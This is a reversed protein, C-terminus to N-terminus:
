HTHKRMKMKGGCSALGSPSPLSYMLSLTTPCTHISSVRIMELRNHLSPLGRHLDTCPPFPSKYLAIEVHMHTDQLSPTEDYYLPPGTKHQNPGRSTKVFPISIVWKANIPHPYLPEEMRHRFITNSWEFCRPTNKQKWVIKKGKNKIYTLKVWLFRYAELESLIRWGKLPKPKGKHTVNNILGYIVQWGGTWPVCGVVWRCKWFFIKTDVKTKVHLNSLM